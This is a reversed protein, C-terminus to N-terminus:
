LLAQATALLHQKFEKGKGFLMYNARDKARSGMRHDCFELAAQTYGWLSDRIGPMDNGYGTEVLENITDRAALAYAEHAEVQEGDGQEDENHEPLVSVGSVDDVFKVREVPTLIRQRMAGYLEKIEQCQQGILGLREKATEIHDTVGNVHWYTIYGGAGLAMELTNNCVVRVTTLQIMVGTAGDNGNCLLCYPHITDGAGVDFDYKSLRALIWIKQGQKLSGATEYQAEGSAIMPDFFKFAEVNQLPVYRPSVVAMLQEDTNRVLAVRSECKKVNNFGPTHWFLERTEVQWDLGAERLAEASTPSNDLIKGLQHWPIERVSFMNEVCHM